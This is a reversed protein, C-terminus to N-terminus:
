SIVFMSETRMFSSLVEGGNSTVLVTDEIHYRADGQEIHSPEVNVLMGPELPATAGLAVEFGEHISLGTSHGFTGWPHVLNLRKCAAQALDYLEGATVGPKMHEFMVQEVEWMRKYINAQKTNAAQVVANRSIDTYYGAFGAGFDIHVVQGSELKVRELPIAHAVTSHVGAHLHCHALDDAGLHLAASRMSTAVDLESDGVRALGFATQIAKDTYYAALRFLEIEAPTKILRTKRFVERGDRLEAEPLKDTLYQFKALPIADVDIGLTRNALGLDKLLEVLLDEHSSSSSFLTPGFRAARIDEIWSYERMYYASAENTVAGQVGDATTVVYGGPGMVGGAYTVNTEEVAIVADLGLGRINAKLRDIDFLARRDTRARDFVTQTENVRGVVGTQLKELAAVGEDDPLARRENSPTGTFGQSTTRQGSWQRPM